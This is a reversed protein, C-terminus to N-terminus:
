VTNSRVKSKIKFDNQKFLLTQRRAIQPVKLEASLEMTQSGARMQWKQVM